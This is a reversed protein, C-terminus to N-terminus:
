SKVIQLQGYADDGLGTLYGATRCRRYAWICGISTCAKSNVRRAPGSVEAPGCEAEATGDEPNLRLTEHFARVAEQLRRERLLIGGLLCYAKADAPDDRIRQQLQHIDLEAEDTM